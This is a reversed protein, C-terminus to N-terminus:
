GTAQVIKYGGAKLARLFAPMMQATQAKIDHFLLIGKKRQNLRAMVLRLQQEPSMPTWDSAWLDTGWVAINRRSLETLLEPTDLFGPFRFHPAIPKGLAQQIADQGETIELLGKAFPQKNLWRHNMTHNAITHGFAGIRRVMEPNERANQGIMFFTAKVQERALSELIPNTTAPFPGDDFTLIVEGDLLPLSQPYSKIGFRPTDKASVSMVRSTGLVSTANVPSPMAATLMAAGLGLSVKRRDSKPSYDTLKKNGDPHFAAYGKV